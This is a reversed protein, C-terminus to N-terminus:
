FQLRCEENLFLLSDGREQGIELENQTAEKPMVTFGEAEMKQRSLISLINGMFLLRQFKKTQFSSQFTEHPYPSSPSSSM